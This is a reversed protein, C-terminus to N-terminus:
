SHYQTNYRHSGCGDDKHPTKFRTRKSKGPLTGGSNESPELSVLSLLRSRKCLLRISRFVVMSLSSDLFSQALKLLLLLLMAAEILEAVDDLSTKSMCHKESEGSTWSECSKNSFQYWPGIERFTESDISLASPSKRTRSDCPLWPWYTNVPRLAPRGLCRNSISGSPTTRVFSRTKSFM